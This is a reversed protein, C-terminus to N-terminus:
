EDDDSCPYYCFDLGVKAEHLKAITSVTLDAFMAAVKEADYYTAIRVTVEEYSDILFKIEQRHDVVADSIFENVLNTSKYDDSPYFLYGGKMRHGGMKPFSRKFSTALEEAESDVLIDFSHEIIKM